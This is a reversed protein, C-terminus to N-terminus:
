STFSVIIEKTPPSVLEGWKKLTEYESNPVDAITLKITQNNIWQVEPFPLNMEGYLAEDESSKMTLFRFSQLDLGRIASHNVLNGENFGFKILARSQDKNLISGMYMSEPLELSYVEEQHIQVLVHCCNKMGCGYGIHYTKKEGDDHIPDIRLREFETQDYKEVKLYSDLVEIKSVPIVLGDIRIVRDKEKVIKNGPPITVHSHPTTQPIPSSSIGPASSCAMLLSVMILLVSCVKAIQKDKM